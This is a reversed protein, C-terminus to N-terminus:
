APAQPRLRAPARRGAPGPAARDLVHTSSYVRQLYQTFLETRSEGCDAAAVGRGPPGHSRVCAPHLWGSSANVQAHVVDPPERPATLQVEAPHRGGATSATCATTGVGFSGRFPVETSARRRRTGKAACTRRARTTPMTSPSTARPM